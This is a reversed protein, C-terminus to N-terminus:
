SFLKQADDIADKVRKNLEEKDIKGLMFLEKEANAAKNEISQEKAQKANIM